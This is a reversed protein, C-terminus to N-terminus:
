YRGNSTRIQKELLELTSHKKGSKLDCAWVTIIKWGAKELKLANKTDRKINGNIKNKWWETRTKPLKFYDCGKHGHWFCGQIFLVKKYKQFVLDPTGPLDSKHLRYRLGKSFLFKRVLLEPKTDKGRIQSM